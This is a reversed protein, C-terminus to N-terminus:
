LTPISIGAAKMQGQATWGPPPDQRSCWWRGKEKVLWNLRIRAMHKDNAEEQYEYGSECGCSPCIEFTTCGAEDLAEFDPFGCVPCGHRAIKM